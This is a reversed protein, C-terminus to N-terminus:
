QVFQTLHLILKVNTVREFFLNLLTLLFGVTGHFQNFFIPTSLEMTWEYKILQEKQDEVKM